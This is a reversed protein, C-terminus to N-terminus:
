DVRIIPLKIKGTLTIHTDTVFLVDPKTRLQEVDFGATCFFAQKDAYQDLYPAFIKNVPRIWWPYLKIVYNAENNSVLEESTGLFTEADTMLKGSYGCLKSASGYYAAEVSDALKNIKLYFEDLTTPEMSLHTRFKIADKFVRALNARMTEEVLSFAGLDFNCTILRVVEM